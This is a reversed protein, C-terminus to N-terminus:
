RGRRRVPEGFPPVPQGAPGDADQDHRDTACGPETRLTLPHVDQLRRTRQRIRARDDDRMAIGRLKRRSQRGVPHNGFRRDKTSSGPQCPSVPDQVRRLELKRRMGRNPLHQGNQAGGMRDFMLQGNGLAQRRLLDDILHRM